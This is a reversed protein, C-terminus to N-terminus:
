LLLSFAKISQECQTKDDLFLFFPMDSDHYVRKNNDTEGVLGVQSFNRM